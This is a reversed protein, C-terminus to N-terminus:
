AAKKVLSLVPPEKKKRDKIIVNDGWQLYEAWKEHPVVIPFQRRRDVMEYYTPRYPATMPRIKVNHGRKNNCPSCSSSINEWTTRGGFTRPHVHDLTLKSEPFVNGCYQCRYGDRLFVNEPSFPVGRGMSIYQRTMVVAPVRMEMSPSHVVWDDYYDVVAVSDIWMAKVADQWFMSSLPLISVPMMDVNLVLTDGTM